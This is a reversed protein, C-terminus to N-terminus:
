HGKGSGDTVMLASVVSDNTQIDQEPWDALNGPRHVAADTLPPVRIRSSASVTKRALLLDPVPGTRYRVRVQNSTRMAIDDLGDGDLDRGAIAAAGEHPIGTDVPPAVSDALSIGVLWNTAGRLLIDDRWRWELRARFVGGRRDM